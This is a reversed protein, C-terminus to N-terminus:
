RVKVREIRLKGGRIKLSGDIITSNAPDTVTFSDDTYGGRLRIDYPTTMIVNEPFVINRALLSKGATNVADLAADISYFRNLDGDIRVTAPNATFTATVSKPSNMTVSCGAAGTCAGSWGSFTSNGAASPLLSVLSGGAFAASCNASSGTTCAIGAPSSNVSGSGTGAPTVTLNYTTLTTASFTDSVGGITLIASTTVGYSGSAALRVSVTDGNNVTGSASTYAGGNVSYTGGTISIAAGCTIGALTISNSTVQQGPTVGTQDTFTFQNPTTDCAGSFVVQDVWATDFGSSASSDKAYEWKLAHSGSPISIGTVQTWGVEGSIAPVSAHAAGDLYFTLYDYSGESSVKWWFSLTGPGTVTTQLWSTQSHTITGSKAVDVGDHAGLNTGGWNASGGTTWALGPTDLATPLDVAQQPPNTCSGAVVPELTNVEVLQGTTPVLDFVHWGLNGEPMPPVSFTRVLNAGNYLRVEAASTTIDPAESFNDVWFQYTGNMQQKITITEPGYSSTDDVDLFTYPPATESGMDTWSVTYCGSGTPVFAYLDLDTPASGWSLVVRYESSTLVPSLSVVVTTTNGATVTVLRTDSIFGNIATTLSYSGAQLGSFTFNGSGDTTANRTVPGALTVSVGAMGQNNTANVVNGAIIGTSSSCSIFQKTASGTGAANTVSIQLAHTSGDTLSSPFTVEYQNQLTSAIQAYISQLDSTTPANYYKGGTATALQALIASDAAGLGITYVPIGLATAYTIVQSITHSSANDVGDTMAIVAKRGPRASTDTLAVYVSDYFATTGGASSWSANVAAALLSKDTTFTQVTEVDTSFKIIEMADYAGLNNIFSNAATELDTIPTGSMSGSYDLTMAASIASSAGGVTSVSIPTRTIGDEKVTFNGATLGTIPAGSQDTVIVYAKVTPCANLVVQPISVNVPSLVTTLTSSSSKTADGASTATVTATSSTAAPSVPVSVNVAVKTAALPSLPGVTMSTTGTSAFVAPWPSASLTLSFTDNNSGLNKIDLEYSAVTGVSSGKTVANPSLSVGYPASTISQLGIFVNSDLVDDGADAIALKLHHTQGPQIAKSCTLTRTMGDMETNYAATENNVYYIDNFGGNINNISINSSNITACNVGDIFFGFVDNYSSNVYENYEESAFVYQFSVTSSQTTFDFELTCADYTTYGPILADLDPNGPKSNVVTAGPETNPGVVNDISGSSLIIGSSLGIGVDGSVSFTGAARDACNSQINSIQVGQGVLANALNAASLGQGAQNMFYGTITIENAGATLSAVRKQKVVNGEPRPPFSGTTGAMAFGAAQSGLIFIVFLVHMFRRVSM